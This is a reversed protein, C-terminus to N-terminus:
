HKKKIKMPDVEIGEELIIHSLYHRQMQYFSSKRMKACLQHERLVQLVMM